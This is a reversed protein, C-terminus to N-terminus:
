VDHNEEQILHLSLSHPANKKGTYARCNSEGAKVVLEM